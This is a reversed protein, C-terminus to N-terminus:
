RCLVEFGRACANDFLRDVEGRVRRWEPTASVDRKGVLVLTENEKDGVASVQVLGVKPAYYKYQVGGQHALPSREEEIVVRKCVGRRCNENALTVGTKFVKACDLFEIDASWGQLYWNTGRSPDEPVLVGAQAKEGLGEGAFWVSPTAIEGTAPDREEPYEGFSWVNQDADAAFFALEEEVLQGENVDEDLVVLTEVGDIVRKRDSVTFTVAHPLVGGGRNVFGQLVFQTGPVLPFWDGVITTSSSFDAETRDALPKCSPFAEGRDALTTGPGLLLLLGPITLRALSFCRTTQMLM